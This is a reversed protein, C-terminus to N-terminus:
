NGSDYRNIMNLLFMRCLRDCFVSINVCLNDGLLIGEFNYIFFVELLIEQGCVGERCNANGDLLLEQGYVRQVTLLLKWCYKM